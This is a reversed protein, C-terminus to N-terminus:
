RQFWLIDRSVNFCCIQSYTPAALFRIPLCPLVVALLFTDEAGSLSLAFYAKRIGLNFGNLLIKAFKFPLMKIFLEKQSQLDLGREGVDQLLYISLSASNM